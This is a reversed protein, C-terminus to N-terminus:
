TTDALRHAIQELLAIAISPEEQLLQRLDDRRIALVKLPSAAIVRASRTTDALVALEGLVDGPGRTKRIGGPIDVDVTGEEIVFAGNGPHGHEILLQGAPVEFETAVAALRRLGDDDLNSFM